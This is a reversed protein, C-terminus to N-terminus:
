VPRYSDTREDEVGQKKIEQGDLKVKLYESQFAKDLIQYKFLEFQYRSELKALEKQFELWEKTSQAMNLREAHSKANSQSVLTAEYHKRTAEKTLYNFRSLSLVENQKALARVLETLTM